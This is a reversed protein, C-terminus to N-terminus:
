TLEAVLRIFQEGRDYENTFMGFSAFAPSLVIADGEEAYQYARHVAEELSTVVECGLSPEEVLLKDTGTGALLVCKKTHKQIAPILTSSDLGKDAGGAILIVGGKRVEATLATLAVITAEPTTANTDNYIEIGHVARVLELRGPIPAFNEIVTKIVEDDIGLSRAVAVALGANFRNHAGLLRLKWSTPVTKEDAVIVHAKISKKYKELAPLAQTGVVLTDSPSQHLFINVKDRLYADLDNKYYNLHDPMFTTFVAVQPSIPGQLIGEVRLTHEEGFGQCQWSDLEFVGFSDEQITELLTLNSVGRVNGGLVVHRGDARATAIYPSDLPVGAGKLILDRDCFDEEKHGGLHFTINSYQKLAQLADVLQEETKMDTVLLDAGHRALFAADGIGRGLLGLGMQTIKKGKFIADLNLM